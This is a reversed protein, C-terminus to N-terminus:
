FAVFCSRAAALLKQLEKLGTQLREKQSRLMEDVGPVPFKSPDTYDAITKIHEAVFESFLKIETSDKEPDGFFGFTTSVVRISEAKKVEVDALAIRMFQSPELQNLIKHDILVPCGFYLLTALGYNINEKHLSVVETNIQVVLSQLGKLQDDLRGLLNKNEEICAYTSMSSGTKFFDLLSIVGGILISMLLVGAVDGNQSAQYGIIEGARSVTHDSDKKIEFNKMNSDIDQYLQIAKTTVDFIDDLTLLM